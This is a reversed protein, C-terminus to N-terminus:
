IRTTPALFYLLCRQGPFPLAARSSPRREAAQPLPRLPPTGALNELSAQPSSAQDPLFSALHTTTLSSM